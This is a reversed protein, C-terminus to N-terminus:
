WGTCYMAISYLANSYLVICYLVTMGCPQTHIPPKITVSRSNTFYLLPNISECLVTCYILPCYLVFYNVKIYTICCLVASYLVTCYQIICYLVRYYLVACYKVTLFAITCIYPLYLLFFPYPLDVSYIIFYIPM